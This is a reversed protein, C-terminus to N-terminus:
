AFLQHSFLLQYGMVLTGFTSLATLVMVAHIKAPLGDAKRAPSPVSAREMLLSALLDTPM